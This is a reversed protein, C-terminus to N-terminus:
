ANGETLDAEHGNDGDVPDASPQSPRRSKRPSKHKAPLPEGRGDIAPKETEDHRDGDFRHAPITSEHGTAKWKVRLYETM